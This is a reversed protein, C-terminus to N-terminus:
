DVVEKSERGDLLNNLKYDRLESEDIKFFLHIPKDLTQYPKYGYTVKYDVGLEVYFATPSTTCHSDSISIPAEIGLVYEYLRSNIHDKTIVDPRNTFGGEKIIIKIVDTRLQLINNKLDPHQIKDLNEIM